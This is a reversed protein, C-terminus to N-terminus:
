PQGVTSLVTDSLPTMGEFKVSSLADKASAEDISGEKVLCAVMENVRDLTEQHDMSGSTDIILIIGETPQISDNKYFVQIEGHKPFGIIMAVKMISPVGNNSEKAIAAM